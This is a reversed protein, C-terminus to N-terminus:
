DTAEVGLGKLAGAEKLAKVKGFGGGKKLYAARGTLVRAPLREALDRVSDFPRDQRAEVIAQAAEGVGKVSALGKTIANRRADMTWRAGSLMVDPPLI